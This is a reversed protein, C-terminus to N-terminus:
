VGSNMPAKASGSSFGLVHGVPIGHTFRSGLTQDEISLPLPESPVMEDLRQFYHGPYHRIARSSLYHSPAACGQTDDPARRLVSAGRAPRRDAAPGHTGHLSGTALPRLRVLAPTIRADTMRRGDLQFEKRMISWWDANPLAFHRILNLESNPRKTRGRPKQAAAEDGTCDDVKAPTQVPLAEISPEVIPKTKRRRNNATSGQATRPRYTKAQRASILTKRRLLASSGIAVQIVLGFMIKARLWPNRSGAPRRRGFCCGSRYIPSGFCTGGRVKDFRKSQRTTTSGKKELRRYRKGSLWPRFLLLILACDTAFRRSLRVGLQARIV